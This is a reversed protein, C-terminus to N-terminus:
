KNKICHIIVMIITQLIFFYFMVFFPLLWLRGFKFYYSWHELQDAHFLVLCRSSLASTILSGAAVHFYKGMKALTVCAYLMAAIFVVYAVISRHMKDMYMAIYYFPIFYLLFVLKEMKM